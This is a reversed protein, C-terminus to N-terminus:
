LDYDKLIKTILGDVSHNEVVIDRLDEGIKKRTEYNLKLIFEIKEAFGEYDKKSYMLIEKYKGLIDILAENCTLVPLGCSMAELVAKDLSGTLGMNVFLDASQLYNVIDKNPVPGAFNIAEELKKERIMKKLNDLYQEDEPLGLGGMIEAQLKIGNKALIEAARILTEYDKSPSIRGISIIKFLKQSKLNSIQSQPKFVATDIGQGVVKVKKGPLRFGTKTSTFIIDAFKEAIRLSFPVYGHAYWLGIKKNWLKWLLGGLIVYIQNMHVFVADYNKRERWTYKYFNILYKLKSIGEEKGLSLVQVNKPLDYEGRCLCIVIIKECRKAFESTWYHFFGLVDDNIDIKQTLILLKM